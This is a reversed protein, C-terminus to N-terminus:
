QQSFVDLCVVPQEWRTYLFLDLKVLLAAPAHLQGSAGNVTILKLIRPAIGGGEGYRKM